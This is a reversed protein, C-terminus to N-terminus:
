NMAGIKMNKLIKIEKIDTPVNHRLNKKNFHTEIFQTTNSNLVNFFPFSLNVFTHPVM